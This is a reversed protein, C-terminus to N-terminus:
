VSYVNVRWWCCLGVKGAIIVLVQYEGACCVGIEFYLCVGITCVCRRLVDAHFSVKEVSSRFEQGGILLSRLVANL